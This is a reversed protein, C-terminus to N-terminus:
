GIFTTITATTRVLGGANCGRRRPAGHRTTPHPWRTGCGSNSSFIRPCTCPTRRTPAITAYHRAAPLAREALTPFDFSHTIYHAAGPHGPNRRFVDLAVAGAAEHRALNGDEGWQHGLLSLAYFAAGELDDPYERHLKRMAVAYDSPSTPGGALLVRLAEIFGRERPTLADVNRIRALAERGRADDSGPLFPRHCTMAIGWWAMAFDPDAALAAQFAEVAEDYWFSHLAAVGRLFDNQAEPAGSNPFAIRGLRLQGVFGRGALTTCATLIVLLLAIPRTRVM